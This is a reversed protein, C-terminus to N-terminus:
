FSLYPVPFDVIEQVIAFDKLWACDSPALKKKSLPSPSQPFALFSKGVIGLCRAIIM